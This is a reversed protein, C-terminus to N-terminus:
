LVPKQSNVTADGSGLNRASTTNGWTFVKGKDTLAISLGIGCAVKVVHYERLEDVRQPVINGAAAATLQDDKGALGGERHESKERNMSIRKMGFTYVSGTASSIIYM